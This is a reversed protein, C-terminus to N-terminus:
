RRRLLGHREGDDLLGVRDIKRHFREGAKGGAMAALLTGVLMVAMAILGATTATDDGVTFRPLNARDLVNYESGAAIALVALAATVLIGIIWVGLGQRGGDFRSMRGAVYGGAYYAILAALVVAIGGAIGLTENTTNETIGTAAGAASLLGGLLAAVGFAVLWGFFSAGWKMGGFEDRQRARVDHYDDRNLGATHVPEHDAVAAGPSTTTTATEHPTTVPAPTHERQIETAPTTAAPTTAQPTTAQPTTTATATQGTAPDDQFARGTRSFRGTDHVGDTADDVRTVGDDYKPKKRDFM